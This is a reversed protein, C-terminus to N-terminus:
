VAAGFKRRRVGDDGWDVGQSDVDERKVKGHWTATWDSPGGGSGVRGHASEARALPRGAGVGWSEQQAVPTKNNEDSDDEEEFITEGVRGSVSGAPTPASYLIGPPTAPPIPLSFSSFLANTDLIHLEDFATTSPFKSPPPVRLSYSPPTVTRSSTISESVSESTQPGSDRLLPKPQLQPPPFTRNNLFTTTLSAIGGVVLGVISACALFIYLPYFTDILFSALQIPWIITLTYLGTGMIIFPHFIFLFKNFLFITVIPLPRLLISMFQGALLIGSWIVRFTSSMVTWASAKSPPPDLNDRTGDPPNDKYAINEASQQLKLMINPTEIPFPPADTIITPTDEAPRYVSKTYGLTPFLVIFIIAIIIFANLLHLATRPLLPVM